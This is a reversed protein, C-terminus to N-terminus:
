GLLRYADEYHRYFLEWDARKALEYASRRQVKAEDPTLALQEGILEAIRGIAEDVNRDDRPVIHVPQHKLEAFPKTQQEEEAWLGFGALTTTITPVGYRISELPTYGWPEYYSPYITLDMGVLLDYYSLDFIGDIGNLYCPVFLLKVKGEARDLGRHRIHAVARDHDTNYLWHTLEPHQLPQQAPEEPHSLLYQLEARPGAEWAPVLLCAVIEREGQYQQAFRYLSEIFLDIGKNRYEYRGGLSIFYAREDIPTGYLKSAVAALLRRAKRRKAALSSSLPSAGVHFGNPLVVPERELLQKAERATLRSVTAFVDATHAARKELTHKAEVGLERAMQDGQYADMYTYLEKYNGAISRGVTTAHTIFITKVEPAHLHLWLLGLGTQWENFLAIQQKPQYYGLISQMVRAAAVAFLCSEDYDGYGKDGEIGYEKWAEFYLEGQEQWLPKFDVLVVAPEGAVAWRGVVLRLGLEASAERQWAALEPVATPIFDLPLTDGEAALLPGVFIIDQPHRRTMTAARSALVTYIGGMKNCVEWSTELLM